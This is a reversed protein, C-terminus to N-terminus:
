RCVPEKLNPTPTPPRRQRSRAEKASRQRSRAELWRLPSVGAIDLLDFYLYMTIGERTFVCEEERIRIEKEIKSFLVPLRNAL